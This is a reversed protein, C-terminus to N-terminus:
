ISFQQQVISISYIKCPTAYFTVFVNATDARNIGTMADGKARLLARSAPIIEQSGAVALDPPVHLGLDRGSLRTRVTTACARQETSGWYLLTRARGVCGPRARNVPSMTRGAAETALDGAGATLGSAILPQKGWDDVDAILPLTQRRRIAAADAM